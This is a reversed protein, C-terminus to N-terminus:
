LRGITSDVVSVDMAGSNIKDAIQTYTPSGADLAVGGNMEVDTMITLLRATCLRFQLTGLNLRAIRCHIKEPHDMSSIKAGLGTLAYRRRIGSSKPFWLAFKVLRDNFGISLVPAEPEYRIQM